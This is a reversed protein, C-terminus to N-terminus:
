WMEAVVLSIWMYLSTRYYIVHFLSPFVHVFPDPKKDMCMLILQNLGFCHAVLLHRVLLHESLFGRM